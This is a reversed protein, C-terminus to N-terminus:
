GATWSTTTTFTRSKKGVCFLVTGGAVPSPRDEVGEINRLEDPLQTKLKTM